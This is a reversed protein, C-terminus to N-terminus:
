ECSSFSLIQLCAALIELYLEMMHYSIIECLTLGAQSAASLCESV